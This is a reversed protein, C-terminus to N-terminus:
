CYMSNYVDPDMEPVEVESPTADESSKSKLQKILENLTAIQNLQMQIVIHNVIQECELKSHCEFAYANERTRLSFFYEPDAQRSRINTLYKKFINTRYGIKVELISKIKIEEHLHGDINFLKLKAFVKDLTLHMPKVGDNRYRLCITTM